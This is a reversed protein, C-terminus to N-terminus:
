IIGGKGDADGLRVREGSRCWGGTGGGQSAGRGGTGADRLGGYRERKGTCAVVVMFAVDGGWERGRWRAKESERWTKVNGRVRKAARITRM